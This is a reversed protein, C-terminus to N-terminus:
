YYDVVEAVVAVVGGIAIRVLVVVVVVTVIVRAYVGFLLSDCVLM